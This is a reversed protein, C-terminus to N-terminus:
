LYEKLIEDNLTNVRQFYISKKKLKIHTLSYSYMYVHSHADHAHGTVM